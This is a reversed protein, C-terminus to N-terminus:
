DLFTAQWLEQGAKDHAKDIWPYKKIEDRAALWNDVNLVSTCTKIQYYLLTRDKNGLVSIGGIFLLWLLFSERKQDNRSTADIAKQLRVGLLDYPIREFRGYQFFLTSITALLGLHCAYENNIEFEGRNLSSHHLLRYLLSILVEQYAYPDMRFPTRSCNLLRSLSMFDVFIYRSNSDYIKIDDATLFFEEQSISQGLM